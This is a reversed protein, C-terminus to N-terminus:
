ELERWATAAQLYILLEPLQHGGSLGVREHHAKCLRGPDLHSTDFCLQLAKGANADVQVWAIPCPQASCDLEELTTPM